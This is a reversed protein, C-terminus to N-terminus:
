KTNIKNIEIEVGCLKQALAVEDARTWLIIGTKNSDILISIKKLNEDYNIEYFIDPPTSPFLANIVYEKIDKSYKV